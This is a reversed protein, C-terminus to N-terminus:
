SGFHGSSPPWGPPKQPCKISKHKYSRCWECQHARARPRVDSCGGESHNWAWCLEAGVENVRWRGDPRHAKGKGRGKAGGGRGPATGGTSGEGGTARPRKRPASDKGTASQRGSGAPGGAAAGPPAGPCRARSLLCEREPTQCSPSRSSTPSSSCANRTSSRRGSSGTKRRSRSATTGPCRRVWRM